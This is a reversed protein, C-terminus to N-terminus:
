GSVSTNGHWNQDLARVLGRQADVNVNGEAAALALVAVEIGQGGLLVGEKVAVQVRHAVVDLLGALQGGAILHVGDVKAAAGGAEETGVAKGDDHGGDAPVKIHVIAGLDGELAIGIGDGVLQEVPEPGLAEVPHAEADLGVIVLHQFLQAPGM